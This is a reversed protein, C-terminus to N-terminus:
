TRFPFEIEQEEGYQALFESSKRVNDELKKSPILSSFFLLVILIIMTVIFTLVYKLSTKLM